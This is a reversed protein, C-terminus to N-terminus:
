SPFRHFCSSIYVLENDVYVEIRLGYRSYYDLVLYGSRGSISNELMFVVSWLSLSSGSYGLYYNYLTLTLNVNRYPNSFSYELYSHPITSNDVICLSLGDLPVREEVFRYGKVVEM